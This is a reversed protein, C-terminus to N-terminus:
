RVLLDSIEDDNWENYPSKINPGFYILMKIPFAENM